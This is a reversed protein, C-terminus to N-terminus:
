RSSGTMRFVPIAVLTPDAFVGVRGRGVAAPVMAGAIVVGVAGTGAAPPVVVATALSIAFRGVCSSGSVPVLACTRSSNAQVAVGGTEGIGFVSSMICTANLQHIYMVM